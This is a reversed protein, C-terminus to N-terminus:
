INRTASRVPTSPTAQVAQEPEPKPKPAPKERIVRRDVTFSSFYSGGPSGNGSPYAALGRSNGDVQQGLCDVILDGRVEIEIRAQGQAFLHDKDRVADRLWDMGVVLIAKTAFGDADRNTEVAMIPVRRYTRWFDDGHDSMAAMAFADPKLTDAVVPRSFAVWFDRTENELEESDGKWGLAKSFEDFPIPPFSRRHWRAWGTDSIRTVDCGNILDFLLDNRKVLHRPGCADVIDVISWDGCKDRGLRVCALAVGNALDVETCDGVEAMRPCEGGIPLGTLHECLCTCGGRAHLESELKNRETMLGGLQREDEVARKAQAPDPQGIVREYSNAIDRIKRDIEALGKKHIQCCDADPPCSCKLGCEWKECCNSCDTAQLAYIVTECTRDGEMRDCHCPDKIPIHGITKEAHHATLLWCNGVGADTEEIRDDLNGERKLEKNEDLIVFNKLALSTSRPQILERGRADLAFGEGIELKGADKKLAFGYVVGRGHVARNILRRREISYTQEIAYSDPTLKKGLYYNNRAGTACEKGHCDVQPDRARLTRKKTMQDM